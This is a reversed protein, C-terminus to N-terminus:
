LELQVGAQPGGHAMATARFSLFVLFFFFFFEEVESIQGRTEERQVFGFICM